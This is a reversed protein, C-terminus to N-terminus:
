LSERVRARHMARTGWCADLARVKPLWLSVDHERTYGLAGHVQLAARAARHAAQGAAIKAASVDRAATGAEDAWALAAAYVLPRAVELGVQV